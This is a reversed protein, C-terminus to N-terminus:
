RPAGPGSREALWQVFARDAPALETELLEGVALWAVAEHEHAVPEGRVVVEHFEIVFPSAGDNLATLQAGVREVELELEEHLERAAAEAVSEGDDLKGGPFEWLGGHRKHAPRRGVLYRGQREVVAAVVRIPIPESRTM